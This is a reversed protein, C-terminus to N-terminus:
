NLRVRVFAIAVILLVIAQSALVTAAPRHFRLYTRYAVATRYAMFPLLVLAAAAATRSVADVAYPGLLMALWDPLVSLRTPAVIAASSYVQWAVAAAFALGAWLVADFGYLVCRLVHVPRIRARRMSFQFVLLTLFTLWPWALLTLVVGNASGPTHGSSGWDPRYFFSLRPRDPFAAVVYADISGFQNIIQRTERTDGIAILSGRVRARTNAMYRAHEVVGLANWPVAALLVPLAALLWYVVLRGPRGPQAPRLQTWFRRPRLTGLATRRFSWANKEPHHEFLYPHLRRDPDLVDPWTFAYGCEPCRPETLGRLDYECLPCCIAAGIADWDPRSSQPAAGDGSPAAPPPPSTAADLTM